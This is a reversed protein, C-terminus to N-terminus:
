SEFGRFALRDESKVGLMGQFAVAPQGEHHHVGVHHRGAGATDRVPLACVPGFAATELLREGM